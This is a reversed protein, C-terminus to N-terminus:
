RDTVARSLAGTLADAGAMLREFSPCSAFGCSQFRHSCRKKESPVEHRGSAPGINSWASQMGTLVVNCPRRGGSLVIIGLGGIVRNSAAFRLSIAIRMNRLAWSSPMRVTAM